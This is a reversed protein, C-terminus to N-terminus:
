FFRYDNMVRAVCVVRRLFGSDDFLRLGEDVCVVFAIGGCHGSEPCGVAIIDILGAPDSLKFNVLRRASRKRRGRIASEMEMEPWPESDAVAIRIM